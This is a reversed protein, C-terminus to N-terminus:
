TEADLILSLLYDATIPVRDVTVNLEALANDIASAIVAAGGIVGSEGVGKIGLPNRQSPVDIHAIRVTPVDEFEPLKYDMLTTATPQGEESYTVAELLAEGIGQAVAGVLQGKVVRPNISPGTEEAIAYRLVRTTGLGLDVSVVAIHVGMSWTSAPPSFAGIEYLETAGEPGRGEGLLAAVDDWSIFRGEHRAQFGGMTPLVADVELLETLWGAISDLLKLAGARTGNGAVVATRSAATMGPRPVKSASSTEVRVSSLPLSAADAAIQALTTRHFQGSPAGGTSVTLVGTQDFTVRVTDPDPGRGSAEVYAMIGMGIRETPLAHTKLEALEQDPILELAARAVAQYDKGDYVVPVGDRYIVPKSHPLDEPGLLNQDRIKAVGIGLERAALDLSRELAFAAEPRGAGRYQATPAKNTFVGRGQIRVNPVAYPGLLHIATNGAVGSRIFCHAGFDVIFDDEWSLIRGDTDVVLRVDHIQDRGQPAAVLNEYRDEIWSIPQDLEKALVGVVLEEGWANTKQGFAGGMSPTRVHVTGEEWGAAACLVREVMGPGQSSVWMDLEGGRPIAVAGRCEMPSANQRAVHFTHEITVTNLAREVIGRDGHAVTISAALNSEMGPVVVPSDEELAARADSVPQLPEYDVMVADAGDEAEYRSTAIVVAVPEGVYKVVDVAMAPVTVPTAVWDVDAAFHAEARGVDSRPKLREGVIEAGTWVAIVGPVGRVDTTDIQKIRASAESSRVFAAHLSNEPILDPTFQAKGLLSDRYEVPEVGTGFYTM